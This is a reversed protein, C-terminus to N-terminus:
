KRCPGGQKALAAGEVYFTKKMGGHRCKKRAEEEGDKLVQNLCMEGSFSGRVVGAHERGLARM